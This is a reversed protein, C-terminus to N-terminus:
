SDRYTEYFTSTLLDDPDYHRKHAFFAGIEPYARRLQAPTFYLQYPLFFRGGHAMTLEVLERTLAEMRANGRVDTTQNVYLVISFMDEPAYNLFVDEKHIVRVSANLLNTDSREFVARMADIFPLFQARPIFYEQLIDTDDPLRNKLYRVSDHMPENRSVLCAEGEGQAQNRSATCADFYPEVHKEVFWKARRAMPGYKSLNVVLRRLRVAGAEELPGVDLSAGEGARTYEYLIMERLLSSPATSLHAYFLGYNRNPLIDRDFLAPFDRAAITRRRREYLANETLELDVDLVVGFLGYGGLVLRFLETNETPSATRISGDPLMVRMAAISNAVSGALHDMGHANVSISGGVTFIDTSQMAKVAFRPHVFTQIDHWTAGSQVTLRKAGADLTMQKFGTMDLVLAGRAFAQGGMSHRVGAVSVKLGRQRAYGLAARVDDASTVRVIGHVATRNLCSADNIVGGRQLWPLGAAPDPPPAVDKLSQLSITTPAAGSPADQPSLPPCDKPGNPEASLDNVKRLLAGVAAVVILVVLAVKRRYFTTLIPM